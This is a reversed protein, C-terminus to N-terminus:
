VACPPRRRPGVARDVPGPHPRAAGDRVAAAGARLPHPARAAGEAGLGHARLAHELGAPGPGVARGSARRARGLGARGAPGGLHGARGARVVAHVALGAAPRGAAQGLGNALADPGVPAALGLHAPAGRRQPRARGARQGPRGRRDVHRDPRRGAPCAPPRRVPGPGNAHGAALRHAAPELGTPRAALQALAPAPIRPQADHSSRLPSPPQPRCAAHTATRCASACLRWAPWPCAPALWAHWCIPASARCPPCGCSCICWARTMPRRCLPTPFSWICSGHWRGPRPARPRHWSWRTCRWRPMGSPPLHRSAATCPRTAKWAAAACSLIHTCYEDLESLIHSSVILTMGQAQLARM